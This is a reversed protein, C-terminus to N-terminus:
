QTDAKHRESGVGKEDATKWDDGSDSIVSSWRGRLLVISCIANPPREMEVNYLKQSTFTIIANEGREWERM